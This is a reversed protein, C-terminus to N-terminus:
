PALAEPIDSFGLLGRERCLAQYSEEHRELLARSARNQRALHETVERLARAVIPRLVELHDAEIPTRDYQTEGACIKQGLGIDLIGSWDEQAACELLKRKCTVWNTKESGANKGSKNKPIRLTALGAIAAALTQPDVAALPEIREWAERRSELLAERGLKAFDLLERHVSQGVAQRQLDRLLDLLEHKGAGSVAEAVAESRLLDGEAEDAIRWGTPLGIDLAFLRALQAFFADITGIRVRDVGRLLRALLDLCEEGSVTRGAAESLPALKTEDKAADALRVLVRDLIEHAAKRTFTTALVSSPDAGGLLLALYRNTLQYTKGTGASARVLLHRPGNM